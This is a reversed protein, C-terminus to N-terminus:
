EVSDDLAEEVIEQKLENWYALEAEIEDLRLDEQPSMAGRRWIKQQEKELMKINITYYELALVRHFKKESCLEKSSEMIAKPKPQQTYL